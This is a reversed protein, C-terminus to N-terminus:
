ELEARVTFAKNVPFGIRGGFSLIPQINSAPARFHVQIYYSLDKSYVGFGYIDSCTLRDSTDQVQDKSAPPFDSSRLAPHETVRLRPSAFSLAVSFFGGQSIPMAATKCPLPSFTRYSRVLEGPSRPLKTFGVQLLVSYPLTQPHGTRAEPNTALPIPCGIGKSSHDNNRLPHGIRFVSSPKHGARVYFFPLLKTEQFIGAELAIL